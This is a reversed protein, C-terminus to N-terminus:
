SPGVPLSSAPAKATTVAAMAHLPWTQTLGELILLFAIEQGALGTAAAARQAVEHKHRDM